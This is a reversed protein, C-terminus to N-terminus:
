AEICMRPQMRHIPATQHASAPEKRKIIAARLAKTLCTLPLLFYLIHAGGSWPMVHTSADLSNLPFSETERFCFIVFLSFSSFNQKPCGGRRPQPKPKEEVANHQSSEKAKGGRPGTAKGEGMSVGQERTAGKGGVKGAAGGGGRGTSGGGATTSTASAASAVAAEGKSGAGRKTGSGGGTARIIDLDDDLDDKNLVVKGELASLRSLIYSVSKFGGKPTSGDDLADERGRRKRKERFNGSGGGAAGAERSNETKSDTLM